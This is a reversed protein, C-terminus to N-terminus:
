KRRVRESFTAGLIVRLANPNRGEQGPLRSTAFGGFFRGYQAIAGYEITVGSLTDGTVDTESNTASLDYVVLNYGFGVRAFPSVSVGGGVEQEFGVGVGPNVAAMNISASLGARPDWTDRTYGLTLGPCITFRSAGIIGHLGLQGSFGSVDSSISRINGGLSAAFRSGVLSATGGNANGVSYKDYGYAISSRSPTGVCVQAGLPSAALLTVAGLALLVRDRVSPVAHRCAISM